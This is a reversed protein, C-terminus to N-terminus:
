QKWCPCTNQEIIGIFAPIRRPKSHVENSARPTRFRGRFSPRQAPGTRRALRSLARFSRTEPKPNRTMEPRKLLDSHVRRRRGTRLDWDGGEDFAARAHSRTAVASGLLSRVGAERRAPWEGGEDFAAHASQRTAM